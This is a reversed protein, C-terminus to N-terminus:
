DWHPPLFPLATLSEWLKSKVCVTVTSQDGGKSAANQNEPKYEGFVLTRDKTMWQCDPESVLPFPQHTEEWSASGSFSLPPYLVCWWNHGDGKGLLVRISDYFGCPFTLSGYTRTSFYHRETRIQASYPFGRSAMYSEADETLNQRNDRIYALLEERTPSPLEKQIRSLLLNRVDLKLAQDAPSDSNALVHFRLIHPALEAAMQEQRLRAGNLLTLIGSLFFLCLLAACLVRFATRAGTKQIYSRHSCLFFNM